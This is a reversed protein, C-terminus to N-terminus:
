PYGGSPRGAKGRLAAALALGVLLAAGWTALTVFGSNPFRVGIGVLAWLLVALFVGERERLALVWALAVVLALAVGMWAEQSLGWGSWGAYDLVAAVNAIAAVSIWGLYLSFPADVLWREWPSSPGLGRRLHLHIAVLSALLAGMAVLTLPFREYHWLFVWAANALNSALFWPRVGALRPDERVAPRLQYVSFALIGVYILGWVAFVYGAPVFYVAFRDSIEGTKLGNLPLANAAANVAVTALASLLALWPLLAKPAAKVRQM